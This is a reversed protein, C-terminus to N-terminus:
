FIHYKTKLLRLFFVSFCITVIEAVPMSLWIGNIGFLTSLIIIGLSTCLLTRLFSITASVVGNRLATFLASAFINFGVFIFAISFLKLGSVSIDYVNTNREFFILSIQESFLYGILFIVVSMVITFVICKKITSKLFSFDKAGYNYSIVPAVGISFGLFLATMLFQVYLGGTIAAVGDAGAIKMMYINSLFTTVSGSLNTVMESSGNTTSKFIVDGRFKPKKFCLGKKNFFFFVLGGIAPIFYSLATAFGAGKLGMELPVILIYDFIMNFIGGFITLVLGLSPKGASVFFSQFLLQLCSVPAFFMLIKLYDSALGVLNGRAGLIIVLKESNFVSLVSIVVSIIIGTIIILTFDSKAEEYRGEGMKLSVIASGGASFMVGIGIVLNVVPYAINIASLADTGVFKTVFFGDVITYLSMFMMMIISPLAFIILEFFNFKKSINTDM